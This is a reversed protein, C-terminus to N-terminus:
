AAATAVRLSDAVEPRSSARLLSNDHDSLRVRAPNGGVMTRPPVSKGVVSGPLITAGRGITVDGFIVSDPGIWVDEEILPLTMDQKGVGFGVTVCHHIMTGRGIRRAGITLHGRDSLFVGGEVKAAVSVESKATWACLLSAVSWLLRLVITSPTWGGTRRADVWKCGLRYTALLWFGRSM